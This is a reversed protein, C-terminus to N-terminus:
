NDYLYVFCKEEGDQISLSGAWYDAVQYTFGARRDEWNDGYTAFPYDNRSVTKKSDRKLKDSPYYIAVTCETDSKVAYARSAIEDQYAGRGDWSSADPPTIERFTVSDPSGNEVYYYFDDHKGLEFSKREAEGSDTVTCISGICGAYRYFLMDDITYAGIAKAYDESRFSRMYIWTSNDSDFFGDTFSIDDVATMDSNIYEAYIRCNYDTLVEALNTGDFYRSYLRDGCDFEIKDYPVYQAGGGIIEVDYFGEAANDFLREAAAIIEDYQYDDCGDTNKDAGDIYVNFDKGSFNMKVLVTTLPTSGFMGYKRELITETVDAEFGYKEMVYTKANEAARAMNQKNIEKQEPSDGCACIIVSTLIASM